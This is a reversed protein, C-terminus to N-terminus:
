SWISSHPSSYTPSLHPCVTRRPTQQWPISFILHDQLSAPDLSIKKIGKRKISFHFFLIIVRRILVFSFFLLSQCSPVSGPSHLLSPIRPLLPRPIWRSLLAPGSRLSPLSSPVHCLHLPHPTHGNQRSGREWRSWFCTCWLTPVPYSIYPKFLAHSLTIKTIKLSYSSNKM